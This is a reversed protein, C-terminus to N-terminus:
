EFCAEGFGFSEQMMGFDNTSAQENQTEFVRREMKLLKKRDIEESM